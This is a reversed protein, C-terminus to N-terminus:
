LVSSKIPRDTQYELHNELSLVPMPANFSKSPRNSTLTKPEGLAQGVPACIVEETQRIHVLPTASIRLIYFGPFLCLPLHGGPVEGDRCQQVLLLSPPPLFFKPLRRSLWIRTRLLSPHLCSSASPPQLFHLLFSPPDISLIFQHYSSVPTTLSSFFVSISLRSHLPCRSSPWLPLM